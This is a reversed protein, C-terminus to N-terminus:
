VSGHNTKIDNLAMHRTVIPIYVVNCIYNYPKETVVILIYIYFM